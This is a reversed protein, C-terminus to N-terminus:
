PILEANKVIHVPPVAILNNHLTQVHNTDEKGVTNSQITFNAKKIEPKAKQM